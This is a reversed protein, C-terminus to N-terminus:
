AYRGEFHAHRVCMYAVLRPLRQREPSCWQWSIRRPGVSLDEPWYKKVIWPLILIGLKLSFEDAVREQGSTPNDTAMEANLDGFIERYVLSEVLHSGGGSCSSRKETGALTEPNVNILASKWDFLRSLLLM